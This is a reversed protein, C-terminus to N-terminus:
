GPGEFPKPAGLMELSDWLTAGASFRPGRPEMMLREALRRAAVHDFRESGMERYGDMLPEIAAALEQSLSTQRIRDVLGPFVEPARVMTQTLNVLRSKDSPSMPSRPWTPYDRTYRENTM